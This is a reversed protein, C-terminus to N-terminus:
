RFTFILNYIVSIFFVVFIDIIESFLLLKALWTFSEVFVNESSKDIQIKTWNFLTFTIKSGIIIDAYWVIRPISTTKTM